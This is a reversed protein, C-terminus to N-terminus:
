RITCKEVFPEVTQKLIEMANSSLFHDPNESFQPDLMDVNRSCPGLIYQAAGQIMRGIEIMIDTTIFPAACTTRFEYMPAKTMILSISELIRDTNFNSGAVLHYHAADTKIDMAIYDILQHSILTEIVDPRSGNTDIKVNFGLEKVKHCFSKIDNQLCPEGGTIAVGELLGKRTELFSFIDKEDPLSGASSSSGAILGPNHCYPCTFNCGQTFVLCSLTKPFDILTNKQFGGIKMM